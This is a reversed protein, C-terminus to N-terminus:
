GVSRWISSKTFVDIPEGLQVLENAFMYVIRRFNYNAGLRVTTEKDQRHNGSTILYM